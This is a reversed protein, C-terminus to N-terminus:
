PNDNITKKPYSGPSGGLAKSKAKPIRRKNTEEFANKM